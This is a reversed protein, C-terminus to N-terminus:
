FDLVILALLAMLTDTEGAMRLSVSALRAVLVSHLIFLYIILHSFLHLFLAVLLTGPAASDNLADLTAVYHCAVAFVLEAKIAAFYLDCRM